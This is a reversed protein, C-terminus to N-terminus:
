HIGQMMKNRECEKELAHGFQSAEVHLITNWIWDAKMLELVVVKTGNIEVQLIESLRRVPKGVKEEEVRYNIGLCNVSYDRVVNCREELSFRQHSRM